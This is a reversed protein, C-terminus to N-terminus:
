CLDIVGYKQRKLGLRSLEARKIFIGGGPVLPTGTVSYGLATETYQAMAPSDDNDNMYRKVVDCVVSCAIVALNSDDAIMEDLDAGVKQAEIRLQASVDTLLVECKSQEDATLPRWRAILQNLTAFNSM